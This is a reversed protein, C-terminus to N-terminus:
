RAGEPLEDAHVRHVGPCERLAKATEFAWSPDWRWKSNIWLDPKGGDVVRFFHKGDMRYYKVKPAPPDVEDALALLTRAFKRIKKASVPKNAARHGLSWVTLGGGRIDVGISSYEGRLLQLEAYQYDGGPDHRYFKPYESM